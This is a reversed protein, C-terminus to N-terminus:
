KGLAVRNYQGIAVTTVNTLGIDPLRTPNFWGSDFHDEGLEFAGDVIHGVGGWASYHGIMDTDHVKRYELVSLSGVNIIFGTEEETERIVCAERSETFRKEDFSFNRQGGPTEWLGLNKNGNFKRRLLLISAGDESPIIARVSEINRERPIILNSM